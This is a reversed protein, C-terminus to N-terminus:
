RVQRRPAAGPPAGAGSGTLAWAARRRDLDDLRAVTDATPPGRNLAVRDPPAGAKPAQPLSSTYRQVVAIYQKILPALEAAGSAQVIRLQGLRTQLLPRHLSFASERIVQQLSFVAAQPLSNTDTRVEVPVHLVEGLKRLTLARSWSHPQTGTLFQVTTVAWWHELHRLTAFRPRCAQLFATQWNLTQPLLALMALLAQRGGPAELFATVFLQASARYTVAAEGAAPWQGPLSLENFSLPQQTAFWLRLQELNHGGIQEQTGGPMRGARDGLRALLPTPQPVLDPGFATNLKAALGEVLWIPLEPAFPGPNRGALETLLAQVLLRLLSDRDIPDPLDIAYHWGDAFRTSVVAGPATSGFSSSRISVDIHGQWQDPLRLAGLLAQKVRECSVAALDPQLSVLPARPPQVLQGLSPVTPAPSYITFQGSRSQVVVATWGPGSLGVGLCAAFLLPLHRQRPATCRHCLANL